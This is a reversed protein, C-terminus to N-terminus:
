KACMAAHLCGGIVFGYYRGGTTKVTAPSGIEDLLSLVENAHLSKQQLPTDLKELNCIAEETPYVPKTHQTAIYSKATQTFQDIFHM